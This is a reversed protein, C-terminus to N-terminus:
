RRCVQGLPQINNPFSECGLSHNCKLYIIEPILNCSLISEMDWEKPHGYLANEEFSRYFKRKRM